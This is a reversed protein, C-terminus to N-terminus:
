LLKSADPLFPFGAPLRGISALHDKESVTRSPLKGNPNLLDWGVQVVGEGELPQGVM